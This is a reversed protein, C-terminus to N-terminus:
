GVLFLSLEQLVDDNSATEDPVFREVTLDANIRILTPISQITYKDLVEQYQDNGRWTDTDFKYIWVNGMSELESKLMGNLALCFPCTDRGFYIVGIIKNNLLDDIDEIQVSFDDPVTELDSIDLSNGTSSDANDGRHLTGCETCLMILVAIMVALLHRAWVQKNLKM